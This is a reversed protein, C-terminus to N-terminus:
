LFLEFENDTDTTSGNPQDTGNGKQEEQEEEEQSTGGGESARRRQLNELQSNIAASLVDDKGPSGVYM